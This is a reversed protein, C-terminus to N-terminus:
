PWSVIPSPTQMESQSEACPNRVSSTDYSGGGLALYAVPVSAALAAACALTALSRFRPSM